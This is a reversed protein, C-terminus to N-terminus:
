FGIYTEGASNTKPTHRFVESPEINLLALYRTHDEVNESEETDENNKVRYFCVALDCPNIRRDEAIIDYLKEALRVSGDVLTTNGKLLDDCIGSVLNQDVAEFSAAKATSNSLSNKVHDVFYDILQQNDELPIPCESLVIGDPNKPNLIHVILEDLEINTADRM